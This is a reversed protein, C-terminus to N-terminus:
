RYIIEDLVIEEARNRISNMRRIWEWQDKGKLEETVAEAEQMQKMIIELREQAQENVDALYSWRQCSLILNNYRAPHQVKLYEGHLYGYKGIPREEEPLRLDPIYYDGVLVYDIGNEIIREKMTKVEKV